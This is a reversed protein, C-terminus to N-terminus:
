APRTGTTAGRAVSNAEPYGSRIDRFLNLWDSAKIFHYGRRRLERCAKSTPHSCYSRQSLDQQRGKASTLALQVGEVLAENGLGALARFLGFVSQGPVIPLQKQVLINGRDFRETMWHVTTGTIGEGNALVWFYPVLGAYAPLLSSHINVGGLKALSLLTGSIKQPCSVSILLDPRLKDLLQLVRPDAVSRVRLEPLGQRGRGSSRLMKVAGVGAGLVWSLVYLLWKFVFFRFAMRRALRWAASIGSRGYYDGGVVILQVIEVERSRLVTSLILRSFYNGNTIVVIRAM